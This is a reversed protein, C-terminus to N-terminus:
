ICINVHEILALPLILALPVPWKEWRITSLGKSEESSSNKWILFDPVVLNAISSSPSIVVNPLISPPSPLGLWNSPVTPPWM